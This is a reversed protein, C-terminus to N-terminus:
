PELYDPNPKLELHLDDRSSALSPPRVERQEVRKAAERRWAKSAKKAAQRVLQHPQTAGVARSLLLNGKLRKDPSAM